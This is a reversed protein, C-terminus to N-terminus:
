AAVKLKNEVTIQKDLDAFLQDLTVSKIEATAYNFIKSFRVAYIKRGKPNNRLILKQQLEKRVTTTDFKMGSCDFKLMVPASLKIGKAGVSKQLAVWEFLQNCISGAINNKLKAISQTKNIVFELSLSTDNQYATFILKKM